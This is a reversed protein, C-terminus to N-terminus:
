VNLWCRYESNFNDKPPSLVEVRAFGAQALLEMAKEKGWMAGLGAGIDYKDACVISAHM